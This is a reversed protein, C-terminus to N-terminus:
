VCTERKEGTQNAELQKPKYEDCKIVNDRGVGAGFTINKYKAACTDYTNQCSDCLNAQLLAEEPPPAGPLVPKKREFTHAFGIPSCVILGAYPTLALYDGQRVQMVKTVEGTEEDRKIIRLVNYRSVPTPVLKSIFEDNFIYKYGCSEIFVLARLVDESAFQIAQILIADAPEKRPAYVEIGAIKPPQKEKKDM